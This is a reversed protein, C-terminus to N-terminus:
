KALSARGFHLERQDTVQGGLPERHPQGAPHEAEAGLGEVLPLGFRHGRTVVVVGVQHIHDTVHVLVVGLEAVPEDGVLELPRAVRHALSPDPPEAGLVPDPRRRRLFAALGRALAGFWGDVVVEHLPVEGSRRGVLDPQGVDGFVPGILALEVRADDLVDARVPDDTV